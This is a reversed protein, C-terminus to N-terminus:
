WARGPSRPNRVREILDPTVRTVQLMVDHVPCVHPIRPDCCQFDCVPCFHVAAGSRFGSLKLRSLRIPDSILMSTSVAMSASRTELTRMADGQGSHSAGGPM